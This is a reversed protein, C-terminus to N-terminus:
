QKILYFVKVILLFAAKSKFLHKSLNESNFLDNKRNYKLISNAVKVIDQRLTNHRHLKRSM